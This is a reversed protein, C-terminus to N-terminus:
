AQGVFERVARVVPPAYLIKRHGLDDFALLRARDCSATIAEANAYAVHEDDRSHVVLAAAGTTRLFSSVRFLPLPRRGLRSLRQEFAQQAAVGLGVHRGFNRVVEVLTDPAALLVFRGMPYGRQLPLGGEAVLLTIMAGMSHAIVVDVPGVTDLVAIMARACDIMTTTRGESYGHAPFDFAVVRHGKQRLPEVFAAMFAAESTWGHVLVVTRGSPPGDPAYEYVQVRGVPSAVTRRRAKALHVRARARLQEQEPSMHPSREPECFQRFANDASLRPAADHAATSAFARLAM